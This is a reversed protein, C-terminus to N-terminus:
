LQGFESQLRFAILVRARKAMHNLYIKTWIRVSASLRNLGHNEGRRIKGDDTLTWIRVSASLRNLSAAYIELIARLQGDDTWIRVSASLRNLRVALLNSGTEQNQITWIRVSASLRNLCIHKCTM